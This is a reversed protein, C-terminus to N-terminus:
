RPILKDTLIEPLEDFQLYSIRLLDIGKARCYYDKQQDRLQTEWLVATLKMPDEKGSYDVTKYHRQGDFEICLNKSPIYFDFRYKRGTPGILGDFGKEREYVIGHEDLWGSVAREGSSMRQSCKDCRAKNKSFVSDWTTEFEEGCSCRFRLKERANTYADSLLELGRAAAMERVAELNLRNTGHYFPWACDECLGSFGNYFINSYALTRTHGCHCLITIKSKHNIYDGSVYEFGAARLEEQVKSLPKRRKAARLAVSCSACRRKGQSYFQHWSAEFEAGCSCRFRLPEFTGVYTGSLLECDSNNKVFERIEAYTREKGM